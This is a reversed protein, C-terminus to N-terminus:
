APEAVLLGSTPEEVKAPVALVADSKLYVWLYFIGMALLIAPTPVLLVAALARGLIGDAGVPLHSRLLVWASLPIDATFFVALSTLGLALWATAGRGPEGRKSWLMACAPIALLLLKADQARHYTILFTPAMAAALGLWVHARSGRLKVTRLAWILLFVGCVVYSIANYIRPSNWIVTIEAQLDIVMGGLNGTISYPGPQNLGGAGSITRMNAQWNHIWHPAVHGVWLFGAIAPAAAVLASQIARRRYIGGALLFYLWVFGADHPKVALSLGLCFVGAAAFRDEAFCWAAIICLGVVLIATNGAIFGIENNALLFSVLVLTATPAYRDGERWMLWAAALLALASLSLWIANAVGFPLLALPAILLFTAPLNVYLTVTQMFMASEHPGPGREGKYVAMLESVHYPNHGEILCRTGYYIAKSDAFANPNQFYSVGWVVCVGWCFLLCLLAATKKPRKDSPQKDGPQKTTSAKM